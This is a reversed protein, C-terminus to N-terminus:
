DNEGDEERHRKKTPRTQQQGEPEDQDDCFSGKQAVAAIAGPLDAGLWAGVNAEAAAKLFAAETGVKIGSVCRPTPALVTASHLIKAAEASANVKEGARAMMEREFIALQVGCRGRTGFNPGARALAAALAPGDRLAQNAGQGKFPSMPHAADGVLTVRRDGSPRGRGSPALPEAVATGHDYLPTSWTDYVSVGALLEPVPAHWGSVRRVAEERLQDSPLSSLRIAEAEEVAFSLQWMTLPPEGNPGAPAFPMTFVRSTGDVTYFGRADLLPHTVPSVGLVLAVGLYRLDDGGKLQSRVRSRIGDAGVLVGGVAAPVPSEFHARVGGGEEASLEEYRLFRAGYTIETGPKLRAFLLARMVERPVRLNGKRRLALAEDEGGAVPRLARGFYGLLAGSPTFIYHAWSPCDADLVQDLVGLDSLAQTAQLTLGYGQHREDPSADREFIKVSFGRSQLAIAAALGGLGSGIILVPLPEDAAM